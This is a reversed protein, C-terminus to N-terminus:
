DKQSRPLSLLMQELEDYIYPKALSASFGYRSYDAVVPDNAYGNSVVLCASPDIELIQRAAEKGGM